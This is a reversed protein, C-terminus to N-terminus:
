THFHPTRPPPPPSFFDSIILYREHCIICSVVPSVLNHQWHIHQYPLQCLSYVFCPYPVCLSTSNDSQTYPYLLDLVISNMTLSRYSHSFYSHTWLPVTCYHYYEYCYYHTSSASFMRNLFFLLHHHTYHYPFVSYSVLVSFISM